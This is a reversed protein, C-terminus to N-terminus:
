CCVIFNSYSCVMLTGGDHQVKIHQTASSWKFFDSPYWAKKAPAPEASALAGILSLSVTHTGMSFSKQPLMQSKMQVVSQMGHVM